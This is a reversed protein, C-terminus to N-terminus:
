QPAGAIHKPCYDEDDTSRWGPARQEATIPVGNVTLTTAAYYDVTSADCGDGHDCWLTPTMGKM